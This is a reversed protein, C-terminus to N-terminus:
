ATPIQSPEADIFHFRDTLLSALEERWPTLDAFFARIAARFDALSSYHVNWLTKKKFFWWLREILNLNAAYPPLYVLRVRCDPTALWERVTAARNDTANDLVFTVTRATPHREALSRFLAVM